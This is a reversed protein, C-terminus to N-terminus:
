AVARSGAAWMPAVTRLAAELEAEAPLPRIAGDPRAYARCADHRFLAGPEVPFPDAGGVVFTPSGPFRLREAEDDTRIEHESVELAVGAAEAAARLLALGEENSSCARSFLFTVPVAPPVVAITGAADPGVCGFSLWRTSSVGAPGIPTKSEPTPPSM